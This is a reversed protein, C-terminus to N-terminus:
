HSWSRLIDRIIQLENGYHISNPSSEIELTLMDPNYNRLGFFRIGYRELESAWPFSFAQELDSPRLWFSCYIHHEM